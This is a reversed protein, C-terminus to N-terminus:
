VLLKIVVTISMKGKIPNDSIRLNSGNSSRLNTVKMLFEIIIYKRPYIPLDSTMIPFDHMDDPHRQWAHKAIECYGIIM